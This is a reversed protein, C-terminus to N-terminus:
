GGGGEVNSRLAILHKNDWGGEFGEVMAGADAGFREYGHDFIEVLTGDYLPTLRITWFTMVEREGPEWNTAFSIERGPELVVVMGRFHLRGEDVSIDVQGGEVLELTNVHHGKSFWACLREFTTFEQWVRAVPAHIFASRRVHLASITLGM